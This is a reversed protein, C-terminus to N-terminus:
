CIFGLFPQSSKPWVIPKGHDYALGCTQGRACVRVPCTYKAFIRCGGAGNASRSGSSGRAGPDGHDTAHQPAAARKHTNRFKSITCGSRQFIGTGVFIDYQVNRNGEADLSTKVMCVVVPSLPLRLTQFERLAWGFKAQVTQRHVRNPLIIHQVKGSKRSFFLPRTLDRPDPRTPYSVRGSRARSFKSVDQGSGVRGALNQFGGSGVRFTKLEKQGSGVRGSM